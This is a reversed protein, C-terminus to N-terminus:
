NEENPDLFTSEQNELSELNNQNEELNIKYSFYEEIGRGIIIFALGIFAIIDPIFSLYLM